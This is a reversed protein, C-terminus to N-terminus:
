DNLKDEEEEIEEEQLDQDLHRDEQDLPITIKEGEEIETILTGQDIIMMLDLLELDIMITTDLNDISMMQMHLMIDGAEVEEVAEAEEAEINASKETKETDRNTLTTDAKEQNELDIMIMEIVVEIAVELAEEPDVEEVESAVEEAESTEEEVESAVEEEELYMNVKLGQSELDETKRFLTNKYKVIQSLSKIVLIKLM